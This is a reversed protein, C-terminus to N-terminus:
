RQKKVKKQELRAAKREIGALTDATPEPWNAGSARAMYTVASAFEDLTADPANGRPPMKRIGVWAQATLEVQGEAILKRWREADGVQPAGLIGSRHCAHCIRQYLAEGAPVAPASAAAAVPTAETAPAQAQAANLLPLYVAAAVVLLRVFPRLSTVSAPM